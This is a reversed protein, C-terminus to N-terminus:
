SDEEHPPEDEHFSVVLCEERLILKVYVTVGAVHPKFVYMWEGTSESQLREVFEGPSLAALVDCADDVDLGMDLDALEEIAKLTFRVKKETALQHIQSLVAAMQVAM